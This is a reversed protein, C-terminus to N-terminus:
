ELESASGSAIHVFRRREADGSRGSGEALNAEISVAARRIQVVLGCTESAPFTATARYLLLTLRHAKLWVDLKRFDRM